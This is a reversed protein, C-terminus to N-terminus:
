SCLNIDTNPVDVDFTLRWGDYINKGEYIIPDITPDISATINNNAFDKVMLLWIRNLVAQTENLNDVENDNNWFKDTNIEKNIDRLDVCTLEITYRIMSNSPFSGSTIFIDLIPFINGKYTDLDVGGTKTVTNIFVDDEGLSKIYRLVETYANM